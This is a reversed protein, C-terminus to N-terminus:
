SSCMGDRKGKLTDVALKTHKVLCINLIHSISLFLFDSFSSHLCWHFDAWVSMCQFLWGQVGDWQLSWFAKGLCLCPLSPSLRGVKSGPAQEKIRSPFCGSLILSTCPESGKHRLTQEALLSLAERPLLDMQGCAETRLSLQMLVYPITLCLHNRQQWNGSQAACLAVEQVLPRRM